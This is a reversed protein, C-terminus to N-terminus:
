TFWDWLAMRIHLDLDRPPPKTFWGEEMDNFRADCRLARQPKSKSAKGLGARGSRLWFMGDVLEDPADHLPQLNRQLNPLLGRTQYVSCLCIAIHYRYIGSVQLLSITMLVLAYSSFSVPTSKNQPRVAPNNLDLGKAWAKIFMVMQRLLPSLECYRSLM